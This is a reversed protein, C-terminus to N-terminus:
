FPEATGQASSATPRGYLTTRSWDSAVSWRNRSSFLKSFYTSRWIAFGAPGMVRLNDAEGYLSRWWLHDTVSSRGLKILSNPDIEAAGEGGGIYAMSGQHNYQFGPAEADGILHNSGYRFIRGLYKGQQYAVQATPPKGSVACDGIAFVEGPKTGKVRLCEDVLLGRRDTQGNEKGIKECLARTFPRMGVGAVWVLLGYDMSVIGDKTKLDVKDPTVEKVMANLKVEVGQKELHDQVYSGVSKHFM